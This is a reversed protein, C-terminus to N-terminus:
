SSENQKKIAAIVLGFADRFDAPKNNAALVKM